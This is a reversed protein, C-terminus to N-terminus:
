SEIELLSPAVARRRSLLVQLPQTDERQGVRWTLSSIGSFHRSTAGHRRPQEDPSGNEPEYATPSEQLLRHAGIFGGRRIVGFRLPFQATALRPGIRAWGRWGHNDTETRAVHM